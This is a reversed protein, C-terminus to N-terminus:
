VGEAKKEQGQKELEQQKKMQPILTKFASQIELLHEKPLVMQLKLVGPATTRGAFAINSTTPVDLKVASAGAPMPMAGLVMNLMRVYNFTGVADAQQSQPIAELAARMQSGAGAPGGAQVQDILERIVKDAGGGIAYVCHGKVFAWRYDLADGYIKRIMQTQPSKEDGMKFALKASDIQIGKYTDTQRQVKFDMEMGFGKYLKAFAGEQMMKLQEDIVEKFSAEDKVKLVYKISVLPAEPGTTGASIALSDGMADILKATLTKIKDLDAEPVAGATMKGVLDILKAYAVKLSARDVKCGLNMMAGDDLYGLMNGFDGSMPSGIIAAMDSGPVAKVGVTLSCTEPAPSLAVTVHDTGDMLMRFMGGYFNIVGSPDVMMPPGQGSEKMKQLQTKMQELQAFFMPGILGSAEKVNVYAWVSASGALKQQEDDLVTVLSSEGQALMKKVPILKERANPPCVLAFRRFSTVLSSPRGDVTITSIGEGDPQGCNPNQSIFKEYDSVPLMAGIFMNAMPGGGGPQGAVGGASPSPVNVAFVAFNGGRNVGSLKEDGLAKGLKSIVAEQADFSEPAVGKLFENVAELTGDLKNIRVCFLSKAPISGLLGAAGSKAGKASKAAWVGGAALLVVTGALLANRTIRSNVM